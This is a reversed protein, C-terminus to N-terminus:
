PEFSTGDAYEIRKIKKRLGTLPDIATFDAQGELKAPLLMMEIALKPVKGAEHMFSVSKAMISQGNDTSIKTGCVSGNADVRVKM